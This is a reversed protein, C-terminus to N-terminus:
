GGMKPPSKRFMATNFHCFLDLHTELPKLLCGTSVMAREYTSLASVHSVVRFSVSRVESFAPVRLLFPGDKWWEHESAMNTEPLTYFSEHNM